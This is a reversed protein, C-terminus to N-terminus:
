YQEALLFMNNNLNQFFLIALGLVTSAVIIFIFNLALRGKTIIAYNRITTRITLGIWIVPIGLLYALLFIFNTDGIDFLHMLLASASIISCYLCGFIIRINIEGFFDEKTITMSYVM